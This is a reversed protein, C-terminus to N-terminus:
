HVQALAVLPGECFGVDDGVVEFGVVVGEMGGDAYGEAM